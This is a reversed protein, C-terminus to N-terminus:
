MKLLNAQYLNRKAHQEQQPRSGQLLYPDVSIVAGGAMGYTGNKLLLGSLTHFLRADKDLIDEAANKSLILFSIM